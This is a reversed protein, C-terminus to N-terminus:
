NQRDADLDIDAPAKKRGSTWVFRLLVTRANIDRDLRGRLTATSTEQRDRYTALADQVILLMSWDASLDRRYGFALTAIPAAHGQPTIRRGILDGNIQLRDAPSLRWELAIKATVGTIAHSGGLGSGSEEIESRYANASLKYGLGKAIAGDASMEVGATRQSSINEPRTLFVGDGLDAVVDAVLDRTRQVYITAAYGGGSGRYAYGLEAADTTQPKLDPNGSRLTVPDLVFRFPNYQDPQPRSQRRSVSASLEHGEAPTWSGHLSPLVALHDRRARVSAPGTRFAVNLDHVRLGALVTLDSTGTQYTLYGQTVTHRVPFANDQDAVPALDAGIDGRFGANRYLNHDLQWDVGVKLTSTEGVPRVFDLQASWRTLRNRIQQLDAFPALADPTTASNRDRRDRSRQFSVNGTLERGSRDFSRKFGGGISGDVLAQSVDLRRTYDQDVGGDSVESVFAQQNGFKLARRQLRAEASLRTKADVELSASGSAGVTEIVALQVSTRRSPVFAGGAVDRASRRDDILQRQTDHRYFVDATSSISPGNFGFTAGAANRRHAGLSARASASPGLGRAKRTILNIVGGSGNAALDASPNTAVEVREIQDAPLDQLAQGKGESEFRAVPKGDVLITVNPNGRISVNGMVDVSLTPINKLADTLSGGQAQLDTRVDYSKRDVLTVVDRRAGAVVVESVEAERGEPLPATPQTQGAAPPAAAALASSAFAGALVLRRRGSM